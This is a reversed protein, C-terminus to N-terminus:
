PLSGNEVEKRRGKLQSPEGHNDHYGRRRNQDVARKVIRDVDLSGKNTSRLIAKAKEEVVSPDQRQDKIWEEIETRKFRILKGFRYCPIKGAKVLSYVLSKKLNLLACVDNITLFDQM